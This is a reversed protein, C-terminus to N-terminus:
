TEGGARRRRWIGLWAMPAGITPRRVKGLLSVKAREVYQYLRLRKYVPHYVARQGFSVLVQRFAETDLELQAQSPGGDYALSTQLDNLGFLLIVMDVQKFIPLSKLVMLHHVTTHGSVGANALWVPLNKQRYNLGEM